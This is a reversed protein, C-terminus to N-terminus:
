GAFEFKGKEGSKRVRPHEKAAIERFISGYLTQEPTKCATLTWLGAETAAEVLERTNMPKGSTKLVEIAAELLSRKKEPKAAATMTETKQGSDQATNPTAQVEPPAIVREVKRVKFERNTSTSRVKFGDTLIELVLAPIANRGVKIEAISGIKVENTSMKVEQKLTRSSMKKRQAYMFRSLGRM